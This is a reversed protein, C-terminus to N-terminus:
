VEFINVGVDYVHHIKQGNWVYKLHKVPIVPLPIAPPRLIAVCEGLAHRVSHYVMGWAGSKKFESGIIQSGTYFNPDHIEHYLPHDSKRLDVLPQLLKSSKYVRMTLECAPEQTYLLFKERHYITERVATELTKAAYYIGFDGNSFRTPTAASIHTFSAMVVSSGKGSVRDSKEVLALNGIESRLRDNTLSEIYFLEEMLSPDTLDEFFNIPPFRSPIIRFTHPWHLKIKGFNNINYGENHM